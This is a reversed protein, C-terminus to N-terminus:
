KPVKLAAAVFGDIAKLDIPVLGSPVRYTVYPRVAIGRRMIYAKVISAASLIKEPAVGLSGAALGLQEITFASEGREIRSLTSQTISMAQALKKQDMRVTKRMKVLVRGVIAVWTVTPTPPTV